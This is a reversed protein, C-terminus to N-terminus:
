IEWSSTENNDELLSVRVKYKNLGGLAGGSGHGEKYLDYAQQPNVRDPIYKINSTFGDFGGNPTILLNSNTNSKAVGELLCTRVLKGDLYVDLARTNLSVVVHVWKQLPINALNCTHIGSGKGELASKIIIDNTISALYIGPAVEGTTSAREIITKEQGYNYNWNNVYIWISYTYNSTMKNIPIDENSITQMKKGSQVTKTIKKESKGFMVLYVLYAVVVFLIAIVLTKIKGGGGSIDPVKGKLKQVNDLLANAM